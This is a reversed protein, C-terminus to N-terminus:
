TGEHETRIPMPVTVVFEGGLANLEAELKRNIELDLEPSTSVILVHTAQMQTVLRATWVRATRKAEANERDLLNRIAAMQQERRPPIMEYGYAWLTREGSPTGEGAHRSKDTMGSGGM